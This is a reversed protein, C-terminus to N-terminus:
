NIALVAYFVLAPKNGVINTRRFNADKEQLAFMVAILGGLFLVM